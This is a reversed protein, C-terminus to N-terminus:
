KPSQLLSGALAGPPSSNSSPPALVRTGVKYSAPHSEQFFVWPSIPLWGHGLSATLMLLALPSLPSLVATARKPSAEPAVWAM